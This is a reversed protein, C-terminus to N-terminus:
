TPPVPLIKVISAVVNRAELVHKRVLGRDLKGTNNMCLVFVREAWEHYKQLIELLTYKDHSLMITQFENKIRFDVHVVNTLTHDPRKEEDALYNDIANILTGVAEVEKNMALLDEETYSTTSM